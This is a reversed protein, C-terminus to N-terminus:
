LGAGDGAMHGTATLQEIRATEVVLEKWYRLIAIERIAYAPEMGHLLYDAIMRPENFGALARAATTGSCRANIEFIYPEGDRVRLQLNCPGFPELREVIERVIAEIRRHREVFAKHTDGSRLVRRMAIVGFCRGDCAVTGCTYEDGEVYEQVICNEADSLRRYIDFEAANHAVFTKTSRTGGCQPKLVVPYGPVTDMDGLRRTQPAPFGYRRLFASTEVKDDCIRVVESTSVVPTVGGARFRAAHESLPRLEADHGPFILACKEMRCIELLRDIFDPATAECGKYAKSVGYLGAATAESDVGVLGYPTDQLAKLVSQGVGGGVGTVLITRKRGM